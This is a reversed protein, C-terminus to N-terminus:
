SNGHTHFPWNSGGWVLMELGTHLAQKLAWPSSSQILVEPETTNVHGGGWSEESLARWVLELSHFHLCTRPTEVQQPSEPSELDVDYVVM